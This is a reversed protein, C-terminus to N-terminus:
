IAIRLFAAKPASVIHVFQRTTLTDRTATAYRWELTLIDLFKQRLNTAPFDDVLVVQALSVLELVESLGLRKDMANAIKRFLLAVM